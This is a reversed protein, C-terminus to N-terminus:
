RHHAHGCPCGSHGCKRRYEARGPQRDRYFFEGGEIRLQAAEVTVAGAGGEAGFRASSTIRGDDQLFVDAARVTVTGAAGQDFTDSSVGGFDHLLLDGARVTVSGANGEGFTSSNINGFDSIILEEASVTVRGAAGGGAVTSTIRSHDLVLSDARVTMPGADRDGFTIASTILSNDHLLLEGAQVMVAGAAGEGRGASSIFSGDDMRIRDARVTVTGADGRAGFQTTSTIFSGDRLFLDGARVTVAGADGVSSLSTNSTISSGDRLILNGAGVTVTGANGEAQFFANSSVHGDALVLNDAHVLVRGANGKAGFLTDSSISGAARLILDGARVIISGADGETSTDSRISGRSLILRNARVAITGANSSSGGGVDSHIGAGDISLEDAVIDIKGANGEAVTDAAIFSGGSLRLIDIRVRVLGGTGTGEEVVDATLLSRDRLRLVHADVDLGGRSDRNGDNDSVQTSGEAVVEGGRIYIKGGGDGSTTVLAQDTLSIDARRVADIAGDELRAEGGGGVATLTVQGAEARIFGEPGGVIDIDGGVISLAERPPVELISEKVKVSGPAAGLFGFAEPAAVTFSSAAADRTSFKAGDAFRLEDATSVHFSGQVDLSANPGFVVGAPNLFFFDAGPITSRLTGDIDSREGGTVRSIVNRIRDPGAFTAREGAGLSFREFSHFLNRGARTGLDARIAFEPGDLQLRPGATGDTEVQAYTSASGIMGCSIVVPAAILLKSLRTAM